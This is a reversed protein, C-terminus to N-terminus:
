FRGDSGFGDKFDFVCLKKGNEGEFVEIQSFGRSSDTLFQSTYNRNGIKTGKNLEKLFSYILKKAKKGCINKSDIEEQIKTLKIIVM